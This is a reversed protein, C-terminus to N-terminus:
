EEITTTQRSNEIIGESIAHRTLGATDHISLKRMLNQRHKEVTKISIHMDHAIQKNGGGEAILQLVQKERPTLISSKKQSINGKSDIDRELMQTRRKLINPSFYRKDKAIQFIAQILFEPLCQKVLYGSLGLDISKEIYGDDAHASLILIKQEPNNSLIKQSAEMGNLHPLAIDMIIIDPRLKHALKIAENGDEAEGIVIIDKEYDLLAILGKRVIKHDDVLLLTLKDSSM